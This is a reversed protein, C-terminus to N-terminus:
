ASLRIILNGLFANLKQTRKKGELIDVLANAM